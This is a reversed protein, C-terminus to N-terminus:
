HNIPNAKKFDFAKVCAPLDYFRPSGSARNGNYGAAYQQCDAESRSTERDNMCESVIQQRMPALKVERAAECAQDLEAQRKLTAQKDATFDTAAEAVTATSILLATILLLHARTM